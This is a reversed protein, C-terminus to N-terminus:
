VLCDRWFDKKYIDYGIEKFIEEFSKNLGAGMLRFLKKKFGMKNKYYEKIFIMSLLSGVFYPFHWFALGRYFNLIWRYDSFRKVMEKGLFLAVNKKYVKNIERIKVRGKKKYIKYIEEQTSLIAMDYLITWAREGKIKKEILEKDYKEKLVELALFVFIGAIIEKVLVSQKRNLPSNYRKLFEYHLLHTIEHIISFVNEFTNKFNLLIFNPLFDVESLIVRPLLYKNKRKYVDILGKQFYELVLEGFSKDIKNYIEIVLSIAKKISIKSKFFEEIKQKQIEYEGIEKKLVEKNELIAEKIIKIIKPDFGKPLFSEYYTFPLNFKKENELFEKFVENIAKEVFKSYKKLIKDQLKKDTFLKWDSKKIEKDINERLLAFNKNKFPEPFQFNSLFIELFNKYNRLIPSKLIKDKEKDSKLFELLSFIKKNANERLDEIEKLKEKYKKNKTDLLSKLFYYLYERAFIGPPASIFEEYNKLFRLLNKPKRLDKKSWRNYFDEINKLILKREKSFNKKKFVRFDWCTKIKM